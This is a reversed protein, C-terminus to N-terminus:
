HLKEGYIKKWSPRVKMEDWFAALKSRKAGPTIELSPDAGLESSVFTQFTKPLTFGNGVRTEIKAVITDGSDSPVGDCLLAIHALWPGLHLDVISIQDGLAFPGLMEKDLTTLVQRLKIAWREHSTSRFEDREIKQEATFASDDKDAVSYVSLLEDMQTKRSEWLKRTKESVQIQLTQNNALYSALATQRSTLFPIFTGASSALVADSLYNYYYLLTPDANDSHLLDVIDSASSSLAITAPALAPAPASSVTHTRSVASRSKDLFDLVAKTDTVAKYLHDDDPALTKELPVVLTPVTGKSNIRLFSISLNEAKALNVIKLEVEGDDYGKEALALLASSSWVSEPNYYLVAKPIHANLSM